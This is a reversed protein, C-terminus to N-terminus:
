TVKGLMFTKMHGIQVGTHVYISLGASRARMCFVLDEGVRATGMTSERFWPWVADRKEGWGSAIAKFADRHVLLFAAGTGGVEMLANEPWVQYRAFRPGGERPVLEYITPLGEGDPSGMAQCFGGIIPIQKDEAIEVLRDLADPNWVMDTDVMLLWTAKHDKLFLSVLDNRASAILPGSQLSIIADIPVKSMQLTNLMSRMFQPRVYIDSHIYGIVVHDTM